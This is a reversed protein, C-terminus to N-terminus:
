DAGGGRGCACRPRCACPDPAAAVAPVAAAAPPNRGPREAMMRLGFLHRDVGLGEKAQKMYAVHAGVAKALLDYQLSPDPAGPACFPPANRLTGPCVVM